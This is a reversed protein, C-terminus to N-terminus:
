SLFRVVSENHIHFWLFSDLFESHISRRLSFLESEVLLVILSDVYLSSGITHVAFKKDRCIVTEM